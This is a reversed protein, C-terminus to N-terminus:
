SYKYVAEYTVTKEIEDSNFNISELYIDKANPISIPNALNKAINFYSFGNFIQPQCGINLNVRVTYIGQKLLSQNQFLTYKNNPIIFNKFLPLLGTDIREIDIKKINQPNNNIIKQDNTYVYNYTIVGNYAQRSIRKSLINLSLNLKITTNYFTIVRQGISSKILTWASEAKRYKESPNLTGIQTATYGIGTIIGSESIEWIGEQNLDATNTYEFLYNPDKKKIDNDYRVTYNITGFFKNIQTSKEILSTNLNNVIKFKTKYSNFFTNSRSFFNSLQENYGQLANEYLSPKDYEAKIEGNETVIAIGDEGLEISHTIDISYPKNVNETRYSFKKIFGCIGDVLNYNETHVVKYNTRENYNGEALNSPLSKLLEKALSQAFTILNINKNNSDYQIEISHDGDLIKNQTDFNLSFSESFSKILNLKKDNLNLGNFESSLNTIPIEDLIVITANFRASSVWNDNDFSLETIKGQGYNTNNIVVQVFDKSLTKISEITSVISQISNNNLLNVTFGQLSITKAVSYNFSKEGFFKNQHTYGLLEVNNFLLSM